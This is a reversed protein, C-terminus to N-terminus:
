HGATHLEFSSFYGSSWAPEPHVAVSHSAGNLVADARGKIWCGSLFIVFLQHKETFPSCHPRSQVKGTSNTNPWHFHYHWNRNWWQSVGTLEACSRGRFVWAKDPFHPKCRERQAAAREWVIDGGGRETGGKGEGWADTCFCWPCRLMQNSGAWCLCLM